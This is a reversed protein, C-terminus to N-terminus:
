PRLALWLVPPMFPLLVLALTVLLVAWLAHQRAHPKIGTM